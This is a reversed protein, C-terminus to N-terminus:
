RVQSDRRFREGILERLSATSLTRYIRTFPRGVVDEIARSRYCSATTDLSALSKCDVPLATRDRQDAALCWVSWLPHRAPITASACETCRHGRSHRLRRAAHFCARHRHSGVMSAACENRPSRMFRATAGRAPHLRDRWTWRRPLPAMGCSRSHEQRRRLARARSAILEAPVVRSFVTDIEGAGPVEILVM